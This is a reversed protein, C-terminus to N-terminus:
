DDTKLFFSGGLAPLFLRKRSLQFSVVSSQM